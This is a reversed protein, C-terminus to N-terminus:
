WKGEGVHVTIDDSRDLIVQLQKAGHAYPRKIPFPLGSVTINQTGKTVAKYPFPGKGGAEVLSLFVPFCQKSCPM